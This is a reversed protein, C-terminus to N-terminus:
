WSVNYLEGRADGVDQWRGATYDDDDDVGDTDIRTLFRGAFFPFAITLKDKWM